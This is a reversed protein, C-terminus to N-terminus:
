DTGLLEKARKKGVTAAALKLYQEAVKPDMEQAAPNLAKRANELGLKTRQAAVELEEKKVMDIFKMGASVAAIRDKLEYVPVEVGDEGVTTEEADQMVKDLNVATRNQIRIGIQRTSRYKVREFLTQVAPHEWARQSRPRIGPNDMSVAHEPFPRAAIFYALAYLNEKDGQVKQMILYDLVCVFRGLIKDGQYIHTFESRDDEGLLSWWRLFMEDPLSKTIYVDHPAELFSEEPLTEEIM